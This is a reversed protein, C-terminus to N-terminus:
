GFGQGAGVAGFHYGTQRPGLFTGTWTVAGPEEHAAGAVVM